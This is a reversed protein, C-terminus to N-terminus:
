RIKKIQTHTHKKKKDDIGKWKKKKTLNSSQRLESM